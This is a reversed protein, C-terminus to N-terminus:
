ILGFQLEPLLKVFNIEADLERLSRKYVQRITKASVWSMRRGMKSIVFEDARM